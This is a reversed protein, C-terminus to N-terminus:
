PRPRASHDPAYTGCEAGSSGVRVEISGAHCEEGHNHRCDTVSCAGVVAMQAGPKEMPNAM